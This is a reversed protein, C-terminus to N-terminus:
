FKSKSKCFNNGVGCNGSGRSVTSSRVKMKTKQVNARMKDRMLDIGKGSSVNSKKKKVTGTNIAPMAPGRTDDKKPPNFGPAMFPKTAAKVTPKVTPTPNKKTAM